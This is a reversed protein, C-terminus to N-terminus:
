GRIVFSLFVAKMVKKRILSMVGIRTLVHQRSLGERPVGDAFTEAGDAGPECLHRMFLSVYARLPNFFVFCCFAKHCWNLFTASSWRSWCKVTKLPFWMNTNLSRDESSNKRLNGECTESWGSPLLPTKHPCGMVCWQTWSPRGRGLTSDWFRPFMLPTFM